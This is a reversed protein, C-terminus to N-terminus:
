GSCRFREPEETCSLAEQRQHHRRRSQAGGQSENRFCESLVPDVDIVGISYYTEPDNPDLETVKHHYQKADDLKKMNFYLAAIGKLQTINKPDKELVAKYEDIAQQGLQNNDPTDAGPTTSRPM